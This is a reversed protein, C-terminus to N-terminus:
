GKKMIMSLYHFFFVINLSVLIILMSDIVGAMSSVSIEHIFQLILIVTYVSTSGIEFPLEMKVILERVNTQNDMNHKLL